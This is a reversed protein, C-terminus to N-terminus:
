NLAEQIRESLMDVFREPVFGNMRSYLKGEKDFILTAPLSNVKLLGSLGDEFYVKKSWSNSELFPKVLSPDEDSNVAVFVVNQNGAFKKKVEEYLPHQARCPGCWTAWFDMM